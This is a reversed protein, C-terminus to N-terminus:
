SYNDLEVNGSRHRPVRGYPFRGDISNPTEPDNRERLDNFVGFGRAAGLRKQLGSLFEARRAEDGGGQGLFRALLANTAYIDVRTWPAATSGQAQLQANIGKVYVDIDHLVERGRPGANRLVKTQRALFRDLQKSPTFPRVEKVLDFANINPPDVAALHAPGRAVSLVLSRDEAVIWGAAWTAADRTRATIHPVDFGDRVITVGKHPVPEVHTPAPGKVGLAESKFYKTLDGITVHDFLPTLGDYM